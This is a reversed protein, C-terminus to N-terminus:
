RHRLLGEQATTAICLGQTNFLHGLALGRAGAANHSVMDYLLWDDFQVPHHFWMSHDLSAGALRGKDAHPRWATDLLSRDSAYVLLCQHLAADEPIPGNVKLWVRQQAPLPTDATIPDVMRVDIPMDQWHKRGKLQDRNKLTAAAPVAPMAPGRAVGEEPRQFSAQLMFIRKDQQWADVQRVRFNRGEKSRTVHFEIDQAPRGPLLFYSHLSHLRLTTDVSRLAAMTAQAAVLGGFLRENETVGGAGSGGLFVDARAEELALRNLLRELRNPTAPQNM